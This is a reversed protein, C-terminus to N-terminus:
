RIRKIKGHKAMDRALAADAPCGSNCLTVNGYSPNATVAINM